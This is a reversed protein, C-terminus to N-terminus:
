AEIIEGLGGMVDLLVDAQENLSEAVAELQQGKESEQLSDPLNEFKEQEEEALIELQSQIDELGTILEEIKKRQARNM